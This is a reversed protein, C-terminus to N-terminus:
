STHSCFHGLDENIPQSFLQKLTFHQSKDTIKNKTPAKIYAHHACALNNIQSGDRPM